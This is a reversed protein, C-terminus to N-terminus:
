SDFKGMFAAYLRGRVEGEFTHLFPCSVIYEMNNYLEQEWM